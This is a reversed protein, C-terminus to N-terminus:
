FADPLRDAKRSRPDDPDLVPDSAGPAGTTEGPPGSSDWLAIWLGFGVASAILAGIGWKLLATRKRAKDKVPPPPIEAAPEFAADAPAAQAPQHNYQPQYPPQPQPAPTPRTQPRQLPQNQAGHTGDNPWPARPQQPAPQAPSGAADPQRTGQQPFVPAGSAWNPQSPQPATNSWPAPRNQPRTQSPAASHGAGRAFDGAGHPAMVPGDPMAKPRLEIIGAELQAYIRRLLPRVDLNLMTGYANVVRCTEPWPPLAFLAGREFAQVVEVRTALRAALDGETLNSAARLDRFLEAVEADYGAPM